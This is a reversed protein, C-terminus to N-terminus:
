ADEDDHRGGDNDKVVDNDCSKIMTKMINTKVMIIMIMIMIMMTVPKCLRM